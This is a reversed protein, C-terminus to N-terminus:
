ESKVERGTRDGGIPRNADGALDGIGARDCPGLHDLEVDVIGQGRDDPRNELELSEPPNDELGARRRRDAEIEARFLEREEIPVHLFDDFRAIELNIDSARRPVDAELSRQGNTPSRGWCGSRPKKRLTPVPVYVAEGTIPDKGTHYMCTSRTMPTPTFIQVGEVPKEGSRELERLFDALERAEKDTTGPHAVMFYYKLHQPRDREGGRPAVREATVEAFMKRFERSVAAARKNMLRLVKASVHEPAIKLLGPFTIAPWNACM